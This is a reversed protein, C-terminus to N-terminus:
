NIEAALRKLIKNIEGLCCVGSPNRIECSCLKEKIFRSVQKSVSSEGTRAIEQRAFGETFGFCYCLPRADGTTKSTVLERADDIMFTQGSIAYYVVACNQSSCFKYEEDGVSFLKESKVHHVVTQRSVDRGTEDCGGCANQPTEKSTNAGSCCCDM